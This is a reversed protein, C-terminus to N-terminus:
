ALAHAPPAARRAALARFVVIHGVLATFVHVNVIWNFPAHFPLVVPPGAMFRRLPTPASTVAIAVVIVLLASGMLNWAFVLAPPLPRRSALLGLGLASAGTLVDLNYGSWTMQIPLDGSEFLGHLIVELPLRFAMLGVLLGLPLTALRRGVPSLGLAVATILTVPLYFLVRPPVGGELVGSRALAAHAAMWLAIGVAGRTTWARERGAPAARRLLWLDAFAVALTLAVFATTLSAPPAFLM